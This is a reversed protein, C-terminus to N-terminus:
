GILDNEDEYGDLSENISANLRIFNLFLELSCDTFTRNIKIVSTFKLVISDVFRADTWEILNLM